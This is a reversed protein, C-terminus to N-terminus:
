SWINKLLVNWSSRIKRQIEARVAFNLCGTTHTQSHSSKEEGSRVEWFRTSLQKSGSTKGSLPMQQSFSVNLTTLLKM